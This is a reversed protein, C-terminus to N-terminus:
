IVSVGYSSAALAVMLTFHGRSGGKQFRWHVAAARAATWARISCAIDVVHKRFEDHALFQQQQEDCGALKLEISL